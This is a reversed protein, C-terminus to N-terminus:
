SFILSKMEEPNYCDSCHTGICITQNSLVTYILIFLPSIVVTMKNEKTKTVQLSFATQCINTSTDSVNSCCESFSDTQSIQPSIQWGM